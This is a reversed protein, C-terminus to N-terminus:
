RKRRWFLWIGALLVPVVAYALYQLRSPARRITAKGIRMMGQDEPTETRSTSVRLDLRAKSRGALSLTLVLPYEGEAPGSRRALLISIPVLEGPDLRALSSPAVEVDCGPSEAFLAIQSAEWEFINRIEISLEAREGRLRASARSAYLILGDREWDAGTSMEMPRRGDAARAFPDAGAVLLVKAVKGTRALHLPTMGRDDVDDAPAGRALLVRAVDATAAEHLPTMGYGNRARLNAGRRVLLDAVDAKGAMAAWHLPTMGFQARADVEASRDLLIAAADSSGGIAAWHLATRGHADRGSIAAGRDLASRLENTNSSRAAELLDPLAPDPSRRSCGTTALPLSFWVAVLLSITKKSRVVGARSFSHRM